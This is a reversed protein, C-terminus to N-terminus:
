LVTSCLIYKNARPEVQSRRMMIRHMINIYQLTVAHRQYRYLEELPATLIVLVNLLQNCLSHIVSVWTRSTESPLEPRVLEEMSNYVSWMLHEVCLLIATIDLRLCSLISM